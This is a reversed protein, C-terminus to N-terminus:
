TLGMLNAPEKMSDSDKFRRVRTGKIACEQITLLRGEERSAESVTVGHLSDSGIHEYARDRARTLALEQLARLETLDKSGVGMQGSRLWNGYASNVLLVTSMSVVVEVPMLGIEILKALQQAQLYTTWPLENSPPEDEIAVATGTLHFQTVKSGVVQTISDVVGIVGHAGLHRAEERLRTHAAGYANSFGEIVEGLEFAMGPFTWSTVSAAGFREIGYNRIRAIHKNTVRSTSGQRMSVSETNADLISLHQKEAGPEFPMQSAVEAWKGQSRRSQPTGIFSPVNGKYISGFYADSTGPRFAPGRNLFGLTPHFKEFTQLRVVEFGQVISVARLGLSKLAPIDGIPLSSTFPRGLTPGISENPLSAREVAM